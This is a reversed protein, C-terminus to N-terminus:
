ESALEPITQPTAPDRPKLPKFGRVQSSFWKANAAATLGAWVALFITRALQLEEPRQMTPFPNAITTIHVYTGWSMSEADRSLIAIPPLVTLAIFLVLAIGWTRNAPVRRLLTRRLLVATMAYALMALAADTLINVMLMARTGTVVRQTVAATWYTAITAAYMLVAWVPGGAAGSYFRFALARLLPNRPITRAVRPGWSERESTASLLVITILALQAIAWAVLVEAQRHQIAAWLAPVFALLWTVVLMVRIPLARNAAAPTIIATTLVLLMADMTVMGIMLGAFLSWFQPTSFMMATGFRMLQSTLTLVPAYIGITGLFFGVALLIKFPRSTPLAGLFLAVISQSIVIAIAVALLIAINVFDVGRLVYSFMLFPLSASFLLAVIGTVALVKGLVITRPRITTIFLLDVNVDSREAAMRFGAYMPVFFVGATFVVSFLITFAGPGAAVPAAQLSNTIALVAVTVLQALLSLVLAVLVFKGRVAQRLEKVAIPNLWDDFRAALARM